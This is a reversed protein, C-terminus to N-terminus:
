PMVTIQFKATRGSGDTATAQITVTRPGSVKTPAHYTSDIDAVQKMSAAVDTGKSRMADYFPALEQTRAVAVAAQWNAAFEAGAPPPTMVRVNFSAGIPMAMGKSQNFVAWRGTKPLYYVGIPSTDYVGANGPPNWNATIQLSANPNGNVAPHDLTTTNASSNGATARHVFVSPEAAPIWVNFAAGEPMATKTDQNFIAWRAGTYYVGIASPDYVGGKGGPNWNPTVLFVADPRSNLSPHDIVTQNGSRNSKDARHVFASSSANLVAVNFSAGDPMAVGTHQNFIAWRSGTYYVGVPDNDYVGGAGGPNWNPTVILLAEPRSNVSPHDITTTNGSLNAGGARHGFSVAPSGIAVVKEAYRKLAAQYPAVDQAVLKARVPSSPDGMTGGDGKDGVISWSAPLSSTFLFTSGAKIEKPANTIEFSPPPAVLSLTYTGSRGGAASARVTVNRSRVIRAPARYVIQTTGLGLGEPPAELTGREVADNAGPQSDISWTFELNSPGAAIELTQGDVLRGAQAQLFRSDIGSDPPPSRPLVPAVTVPTMLQIVASDTQRGDLARVSINVVVDRGGTGERPYQYTVGLQQGDLAPVLNGLSLATPVGSGLTAASPVLAFSAQRTVTFQASEGPNLQQFRPAIRLPVEVDVSPDYSPECPNGPSCSDGSLRPTSPPNTTRASPSGPRQDMFIARYATSDRTVVMRRGAWQQHSGDISEVFGLMANDPMCTSPGPPCEELRHSANNNGLSKMLWNVESPDMLLLKIMTVTNYAPEFVGPTAPDVRFVERPGRFGPELDAADARSLHMLRNAERISMPLLRAAVNDQFVRDLYGHPSTYEHKLQETTLGTAVEIMGSVLEEVRASHREQPVELLRAAADLEGLANGLGRAMMDRLTTSRFRGLVDTVRSLDPSGNENFVLEMAVQHSTEVWTVLGRDIASMQNRLLLAHPLRPDALAPSIQLAAAALILDSPVVRTALLDDAYRRDGHHYSDPCREPASVLDPCVPTGPLRPAPQSTGPLVIPLPDAAWDFERHAAQNADLAQTYAALLPAWGGEIPSVLAQYVELLRNFYWPLSFFRHSEVEIGAGPADHLYKRIFRSVGDSIGNRRIAEYVSGGAGLGALAPTREGIYGEIVIHKLGNQSTLDFIGGTFTNLWTHGYVDGAAHALFGAVFALNQPTRDSTHAAGWLQQLWADTGAGHTNADPDPPNPMGVGADKGPPHIRMQGTAIDPYADPGLVGAFFKEPHDGIASKLEVSTRFCTSRDRLNVVPQGVTGNVHDVRYITICGDQADEWAKQALYVHTVPKWASAAPPHALTIGAILLALFLWPWRTKSGSRGDMKM